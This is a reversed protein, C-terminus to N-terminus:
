KQDRGVHRKTGQCQVRFLCLSSDHITASTATGKYCIKWASYSSAEGNAHEQEKAGEVVYSLNEVDTPGKWSIEVSQEDDRVRQLSTPTLVRADSISELTQGSALANHHQTHTNQAHNANGSQTKVAVFESRVIEGNPLTGAMRFRYERGSLYM